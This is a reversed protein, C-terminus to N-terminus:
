LEGTKFIFKEIPMFGVGSNSGFSNDTPVNLVNPNRSIPEMEEVLKWLVQPKQSEGTGADWGDVEAHLADRISQYFGDNYAATFIACLDDSNTWNRKKGLQTQVRDYFVTGPLPYSVSVGIDDPRTDRLLQVTECIENWREGPYGFQLFYCARIGARALKERAAHVASLKLGKGMADLIKQSGSEVGMWIETCGARKLAAVVSDTMLDARSQIKFPLPTGTAEVADAFAIVWHHNLAFVDDGFWIHEVGHRDRLEGIEAAVDEVARVHFKDGSIPKACWNCRYPCGRSAVINTSFYGHKGVWATRYPELDILERAVLPLDTWSPNKPIRNRTRLIKPSGIYYVLGAVSSPDSRALLRSCLDTLTEEAEGILVYDAGNDLYEAPHDTADSGHAIVMAGHKKALLALENALQRMHTLCMKTVYNFDDEYIVVIKPQYKELAEIFGSIPKTFTPDFIAVPMGAARLATAAYLTGLPPYPQMKKMQKVDNALHYSHTMLIETM